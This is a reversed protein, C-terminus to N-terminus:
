AGLRKVLAGPYAKDEAFGMARYYKRNKGNETYTVLASVGRTSLYSGERSYLHKGVKMDRYAPVVYDLRIRMTGDDKVTGVFLGATVMDRLVYFSVEEAGIRFDFDPNFRGIDKRYFDLFYRLYSDDKQTPMITFLEKRRFLGILYYINIGAIMLNMIGTPYSRIMFGYAAFVACGLLNILRLRIISSTLFSILIIVSAIYGIWEMWSIQPM